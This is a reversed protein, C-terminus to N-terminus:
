HIVKFEDVRRNQGSVHKPPSVCDIAHAGTDHVGADAYMCQHTLYEQHAVETYTCLTFVLHRLTPGSDFLATENRIELPDEMVVPLQYWKFQQICTPVQTPLTAISVALKNPLINKTASFPEESM